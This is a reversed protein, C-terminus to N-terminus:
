ALIFLIFVIFLCGIAGLGAALTDSALARRIAEARNNRENQDLGAIAWLKRGLWISFFTPASQFYKCIGPTMRGEMLDSSAQNLGNLGRDFMRFLYSFLKRYFFDFDLHLARQPEPPFNIIKLLVFALAGFGLMQMAEALHSPTYPHYALKHPLLSYFAGPFVALGICAVAGLVMAVLMHRPPRDAAVYPSTRFLAYYPIRLGLYLMAGASALQLLLWPVTLHLNAAETLIMSKSVFGSFLPLACISALGVLTCVATVPMYTILGGMSSLRRRGSAVIIAGAGMFLLAKYILHCFAHAAVGNIALPTGIGIGAVMYGIQSILSYSLVERYDDSVLAYLIPFIAMIGGLYILFENGAFVRALVYVASKTTFACLFVAGTVSAKAYADPLWTHLLPVAANLGVGLFILWNATGKLELATLALSGTAQYRLLIGALLLLGGALHMLVYRLAAERSRSSPAALILFTSAVAMLEWYLYLTFWDGAFTVGLAGGAYVLASCHELNTQKLGYIIGLLFAVSFGLGFIRSLGDVQSIVLQMGMFDCSAQLGEPVQYILLLCWVPLLLLFSSKVKGHFFPVLLAGFILIFAPPTELM